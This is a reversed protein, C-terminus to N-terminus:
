NRKRRIIKECKTCTLPAVNPPIEIDPVLNEYGCSCKIKTFNPLPISEFRLYYLWYIFQLAFSVHRLKIYLKKYESKTIRKKGFKISEDDIEYFLHAVSNRLKINVKNMILNRFGHKGLFKLKSSLNVEEIDALTKANGRKRSSYLDHGNAILIFILFNIRTSFIGEVLTLYELHLKIVGQEKISFAYPNLKKLLFLITTANDQRIKTGRRQESSAKEFKHGLRKHGEELLPFIKTKLKRALQFDVEEKKCLVQLLRDDNDVAM